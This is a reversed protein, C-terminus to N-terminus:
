IIMKVGPGPELHALYQASLCMKLTLNPNQLNHQLFFVFLCFSNSVQFFSPGTAGCIDSEYFSLDEEVM